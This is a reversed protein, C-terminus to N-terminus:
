SGTHDIDAVCTQHMSEWVFGLPRNPTWEAGTNEHQRVLIDSNKVLKLLWNLVKTGFNRDLQHRSTRVVTEFASECLLKPFEVLTGLVLGNVMGM